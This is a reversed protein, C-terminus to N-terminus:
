FKWRWEARTGFIDPARDLWGHMLDIRVLTWNNLAKQWRTGLGYQAGPATSLADDGYTDLAAFEIVWQESFSAAELLNIGIAAGYSNSGTADLTPYGTLNDSEFNLGTNRLIGGSGAARAVSQPRGYGLFANFYPVVTAPSQSNWSNEFLLLAGDATRTARPGEQGFNGIVRISNSIRQWYRRSYAIAVNHYDRDLGDRDNLYAYDAEIYGDYAEIFWVTGFAQAAQNNNAFAPSTVQNFGAFFSVEFNSWNFPRSHRWPFAMAVGDFADELWIGNQYLLPIRGMTFPLEFPADVGIMGGTMAGLDGEFFATDLQADLEEEFNINRSDSFDLRTFRGNHDLPGMFAHFRETGTLRLDMDLNLRNALSRVPKGNNRHVGVGARYDGAVIFHPTLPNVDSFVPIAPAYMGGSYFPRWWEIWPRQTPVFQKGFYTQIDLSPQHPCAPVPTGLFDEPHYEVGCPGCIGAFSSPPPHFPIEAVASNSNTLPLSNLGIPYGLLSNSDLSYNVSTPNSNTPHSWYGEGGVGRGYSHALPSTSPISEILSSFEGTTWTPRSPEIRTKDSCTTIQFADASDVLIGEILRDENGRSSEVVPLSRPAILFSEQASSTSAVMAIAVPLKVRKLRQLWASLVNCQFLSEAFM